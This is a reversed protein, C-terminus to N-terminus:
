IRRKNLMRKVLGFGKYILVTAVPALIGFMALPNSTIFTLVSGFWSVVGTLLDGVQTVITAITITEM